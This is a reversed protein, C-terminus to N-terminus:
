SVPERMSIHSDAVNHGTGYCPWGLPEWTGSPSRDKRVYLTLGFREDFVHTGAVRYQDDIYATVIPFSRYFSRLSDETDLLIM